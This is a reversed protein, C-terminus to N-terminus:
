AVPNALSVRFSTSAYKLLSHSHWDARHGGNGGFGGSGHLVLAYWVFRCSFGTGIGRGLDQKRQHLRCCTQTRKHSSGQCQCTSRNCRRARLNGSRRQLYLPTPYTRRHM